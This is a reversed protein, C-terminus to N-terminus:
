KNLPSMDAYRDGVPAAVRDLRALQEPTLDLDAAAVNQELNEVRRTGPIPALDDGKSLLWALAVQGPAAGAERAVADVEEVIRINAELNDGEFRPNFRRFDDDALQDLSRISGTLFGRGLPSYPVFGIGLERVTPLVESEPDRTWLSYETQVATVPHVANARVITEPAAESLGYHRIKGEEILEALAGVTDEIPTGPDMRHQYYLDIHDTQLRRLSGEVSLRVNEPSGDLGREDKSRHLITGFKTAIVVKDRRGGAFARALLEENTYPGYIEATDFFTVGLDMARHITRISGADDTGAGTYFASMGMCGLGLRSVELKETGLTITMM